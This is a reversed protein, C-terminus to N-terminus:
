LNLKQIMIYRSFIQSPIIWHELVIYKATTEEALLYVVLEVVFLRIDM